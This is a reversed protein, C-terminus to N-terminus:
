GSEKLHENAMAAVEEFPLLAKTSLAREKVAMLLSRLQEDDASLGLAKMALTMSPLGSGKGYVIRAPPQGVVDWHYPFLEEPKSDICHEYWGAIIGSEVEFLREGVVARNTPITHGTRERVLRSLGYFEETVLNHDADYMMRLALALEEMPTNGAREGIGSVTTHVVEVGVALAALSNAVALGFDDHFHAELRVNPLRERVKEIWVPIAQPTVGGFTDVLSLADMHGETAVQEVLDLYWDFEARSSDITFFVTDLGEEKAALTAEISLKKARDIEWGYARELIHGSSPIEVVVGTVGCDKAKRIDDVMCRAFAYIQPGLDAQVIDKIAAEDQASVIPMGAEIRDVGAAALRRAIAVKDDRTLAVGAQQEGDRLTIDHFIVKDPFAFGERAEELFNWPSTFWRGEVEWPTKNAM